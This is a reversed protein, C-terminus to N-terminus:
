FLPALDFLSCFGFIFAHLLRLLWKCRRREVGSHGAVTLAHVQGDGGFQPGEAGVIGRIRLRTRSRGSGVRLVGHRIGDFATQQLAESIVFESASYDDTRHAPRFEYTAPGLRRLEAPYSKRLPRGRGGLQDVHAPRSRGRGGRGSKSPGATTRGCPTGLQHEIGSHAWQRAPGRVPAITRRSPYWSVVGAADLGEGGM